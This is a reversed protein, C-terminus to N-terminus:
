AAIEGDIWGNNVLTTYAMEIQRESFQRKRPNWAHTQSIVQELDRACQKQAVWYVTALLELGHPTEWGEVLEFVRDLRATAETDGSLVREADAEAAPLLHVEALPHDGRSLDAEVYYHNIARLVSRLNEAYPGYPGARFKLRLPQGARQAFLLLKHVELLTVTPDLMARLYRRVALILVARALTMGPPVSLVPEPAAETAGRPEYVTVEVYPVQALAREILPLVEAWDLGGLGSGLPPIAISAIERDGIERILADLGAAIDEIRSRGRWHRKTPFNVILRPSTLLGTEYVFMRGPVVEHRKCADRYAVFNGPFSNKFALAIGRGMIGVCNVTNVLAESHDEVINGKRLRIM